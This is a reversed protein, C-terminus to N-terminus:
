FIKSLHDRFSLQLSSAPAMSDECSGQIKGSKYTLNPKIHIEDLLLNVIKEDETLTSLKKKLYNIHSDTIGSDLM